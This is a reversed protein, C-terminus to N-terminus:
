SVLFFNCKGAGLLDQINEGCIQTWSISLISNRESHHTLRAFIERICRPVIGYETESLACHLGPGFLTYTKGQGAQGTTVVSIDCGDFLDNLLPSVTLSFIQQQTCDQPLAYTVPFVYENGFTVKNLYPNTRLCVLNNDALSDSRVRVGVQIPVEM